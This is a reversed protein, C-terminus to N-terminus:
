ERNWTGTTSRHTLAAEDCGYEFYKVKTKSSATLANLNM